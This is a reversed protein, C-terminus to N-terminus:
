SENIIQGPLARQWTWWHCNISLITCCITNCSLFPSGSQAGRSMSTLFNALFNTNRYVKSGIELWHEQKWSAFSKSRSFLIFSDDRTRNNNTWRETSSQWDGTTGRFLSIFCARNTVTPSSSSQYGHHLDRAVKLNAFSDATCSIWCFILSTWFSFSSRCDFSALFSLSHSAFASSFTIVGM